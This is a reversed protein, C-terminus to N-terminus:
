SARTNRSLQEIVEAPTLDTETFWLGQVKSYYARLIDKLMARRGATDQRDWHQRVTEISGDPNRVAETITRPATAPLAKLQALEARLAAHRDDYDAADPDLDRLDAKVDAIEDDHGSGPIVRTVTRENSGYRQLLYIEAAADAEALRVMSKCGRRCYYFLGTKTPIKYMPRWCIACSILSTLLAPEAAQSIGKRTAREDMRDAVKQWVDRDLVPAMKMTVGGHRHGGIANESRLLQSLTKPSWLPQKGSKMARPLRQAGNLTDCIAQLTQGDLYWRAADRIVSAEREDIVLEKIGDRKAITYGFPNRGVLSGKARLERQMRTYREQIRLWEDHALRKALDWRIGDAGECPFILGEATLLSKGHDRAWAELNANEEADGRTLRDLKLTVIGDYLALKDPETIWPKLKPREPLPARGSRFDAVVAIVEHGSQEAWRVAEREQSDFGTQDRDSVKQSLRGAVLVRM